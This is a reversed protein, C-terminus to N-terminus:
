ASSLKMAPDCVPRAYCQAVMNIAETTGRTWVISKEDPTNLLRAAEARAAEYQATLRQAQAFQSRHVNGASM